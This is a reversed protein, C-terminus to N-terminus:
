IGLIEKALALHQEAGRAKQNFRDIPLNSAQADAITVNQNIKTKFLMKGFQDLLAELVEKSINTSDNVKTMLVGKIELKTNLRKKVVSIIEVLHAMGDLAFIGCDVPILVSDSATLANISLLGLSPSCDIFVYDFRKTLEERDKEIAEKLLSERSIKNAIELDVNALNIFAPILSIGSFPTNRICELVSKEGTLIEYTTANNKNHVGFNATLNGQPDLDICLVRRSLRDMASALNVATTTKGVGGKQNTFAIVEM